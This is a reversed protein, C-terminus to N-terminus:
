PGTALTPPLRALMPDYRVVPQQGLPLLDALKRALARMQAALWLHHHAGMEGEDEAGERISVPCALDLVGCGPEGYRAPRLVCATGERFWRHVFVPPDVTNSPAATLCASAGGPPVARSFRLCSEGPLCNLNSSLPGLLCDSAHLKAVDTEGLVTCHVLEAFGAGLTVDGILSDAACLSPTDLPGGPDVVAIEAAACRLLRLSAGADVRLRAPQDPTGNTGAVTGVFLLDEFRIRAGAPVPLHAELEVVLRDLGEAEAAPRGLAALVEAPGIRREGTAPAALDLVAADALTVKRLGEAFLGDPPRVHVLVRRPHPGAARVAAADRLDPCRATEDDYGGPFCPAGGRALPRFFATLPAAPRGLADRAPQRIRRLPSAGAPDRVARDTRRLDPTGLPRPNDSGDAAGTMAAEPPTSFPPLGMRPTVLTLRWGERTITEAGSVVDGVADANALTGKTKFWAVANDLEQARRAPDPAVLEAGVLEALYPILWPQIARGSEVPEAFSDAHAQEVTGRMLDLLHGCGHLFAELDGPERAAERAAEDAGPAPDGPSPNDRYRYEEPLERWMVRGARTFLDRPTPDSM